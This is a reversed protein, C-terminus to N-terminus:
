IFNVLSLRRLAVSVQLSAQLRNQLTLIQASLEYMDANEAEDVLGQLLAQNAKHREATRGLAAKASALETLIDDPSQAGDRFSLAAVARQKIEAYRSAGNPDDHSFTATALVAMQKLLTALGEENARAGYSVLMDDDAKAVVSQRAPLDSLEGQYWFVTDAPTADRLSTATDFPPGAVRQPPTTADFDFFDNAAAHLSAASLSTQAETAVTAVLAQRFADATADADAGITFEGPAEAPGARATLTVETETGDPLLLAVRLTEGDQPLTASFTVDIAAPSGSPGSVTAGSLGSSVGTIKFGFPSSASDEAMSVTAGAPPAIILRGLGDSGLDAQRREEAVQRFGAQTGSGNLLRDAAAVPPVGTQRGGFLYRGAAQANLLSVVEDFQQAVESQYATQGGSKLDFGVELADSRTKQALERLRTLTQTMVGLRIDIQEISKTYAGIQALESRLSLVNSRDLGLDAYTSVKKGSALQQQLEALQERTKFIGPILGYAATLPAVM